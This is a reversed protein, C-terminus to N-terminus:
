VTYDRYYDVGVVNYGNKELSMAFSLGLRGIGVVSVNKNM